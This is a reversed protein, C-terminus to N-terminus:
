PEDPMIPTDKDAAPANSYVPAEASAPAESSRPVGLDGDVPMLPEGPQGPHEQLGSSTCDPTDGTDSPQPAHGRRELYFLASAMSGKLVFYIAPIVAMCALVNSATDTRPLGSLVYMFSLVLMTGLMVGAAALMIPIWLRVYQWKRGKMLHSSLRVCDRVGREPEDALIWMSQSYRLLAPVILAPILLIGIIMIIRGADEHLLAGTMGGWFMVLIGPLTWLLAKLGMWLTLGLAKLVCSWRSFLGLVRMSQERCAQLQQSRKGLDLTNSVLALLLSVISSYAMYKPSFLFRSVLMFQQEERLIAAKRALQLLDPKLVYVMGTELMSGWLWTILGFLAYMGALPWLLRRTLLAAHHRHLANEFKSQYSMSLEKREHLTNNPIRAPPWPEPASPAM